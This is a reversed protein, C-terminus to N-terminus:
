GTPSGVLAQSVSKALRQSQMLSQGTAAVQQAVKDAQNLAFLLDGGTLMSWPQFGWCSPLFASISFSAAPVWCQCRSCSPRGKTAAGKMAAAGLAIKSDPFDATSFQGSEAAPMRDDARDQDGSVEAAPSADTPAQAPSANKGLLKNIQDIVSM